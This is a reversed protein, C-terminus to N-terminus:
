PWDSTRFVKSTAEITHLILESNAGAVRLSELDEAFANVFCETYLQKYREPNHGAEERAQELSEPEPLECIGDEYDLFADDEAASVLCTLYKVNGFAFLSLPMCSSYSAQQRFM